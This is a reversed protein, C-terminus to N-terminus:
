RKWKKQCNLCHYFETMAEDAKRTQIQTCFVDRQGCHRCVINTNATVMKQRSALVRKQIQDIEDKWFPTNIYDQSLVKNIEDYSMEQTLLGPVFDPSEPDILKYLDFLAYNQHQQIVSSHEGREIEQNFIKKKIFEVVYNGKEEGLIAPFM